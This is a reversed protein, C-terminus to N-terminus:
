RGRSLGATIRKPLFTIQSPWKIWPMPPTVPTQSPTLLLSCRADPCLQEGSEGWWRSLATPESQSTQGDEVPLCFAEFVAKKLLLWVTLCVQGSSLCLKSKICLGNVQQSLMALFSSVVSADSLQHSCHRCRTDKSFFSYLIMTARSSM